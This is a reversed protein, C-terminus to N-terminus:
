VDRVTATGQEQEQESNVGWMARAQSTHGACPQWRAHVDSLWAGGKDRGNGAGLQWM